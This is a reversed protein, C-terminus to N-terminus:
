APGTSQQQGSLSGVFDVFVLAGLKKVELNCLQSWNFLLASWLAEGRRRASSKLGKLNSHLLVRSRM